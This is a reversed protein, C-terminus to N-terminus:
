GKLTKKWKKFYAKQLHTSSKKTEQITQVQSLMLAAKAQSARLNSTKVNYSYIFQM